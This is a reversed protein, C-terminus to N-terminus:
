GKFLANLEGYAVGNEVSLYTGQTLLEEAAKRAVAYAAEAVASGLSIRAVGAKALEDVAPAGPGVLVNLPAAIGEALEAVLGVLREPSQASLHTVLQERAKKTMRAM